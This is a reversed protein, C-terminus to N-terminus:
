ELMVALSRGLVGNLYEVFGSYIVCEVYKKNLGKIFFVGFVSNM